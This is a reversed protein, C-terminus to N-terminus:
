YLMSKGLHVCMPVQGENRCNITHVGPTGSVMSEILSVVAESDTNVAPMAFPKGGALADEIEALSASLSAAESAADFPSFGLPKGYESACSTFFPFFESAYKYGPIPFMGYARYLDLTVPLGEFAPAIVDQLLDMRRKGDLYLGTLWTFHNVGASMLRVREQAAGLKDAFDHRMGEVSTCIGIARISTHQTVAGTLTSLPNSLNIMLADPCVQEMDRALDLMFPISRLGRIIGAPGTTDGKVQIVGHERCIEVDMQKLALGGIAVTVLVFDADVLADGRSETSHIALTDGAHAAIARAYRDVLALRAPDIDMLTVHAYRTAERALLSSLIQATFKLSGAGIIAIRPSNM